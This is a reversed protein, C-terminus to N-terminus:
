VETLPYNSILLEKIEGRKSSDSNIMRRANVRAIFFDAYLDDFFTDAADTNKPDSNSLLWHHGKSDLLKCFGALRKQENDNFTESSYSNFSATQSLPRYPPDFYFFSKGSCHDLTNEFDGHLITVKQLFYSVANINEEDCIKPNAYRGFPVNFGNKSNV